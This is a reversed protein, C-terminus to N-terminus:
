RRASIASEMQASQGSVGGSSTGSSATLDTPAEVTIAVATLEVGLSSSRFNPYDAAVDWTLRRKGAAVSGDAGDGSLTHAALAVQRDNGYGSLTIAARTGEPTTQLEYDVDLFNSFSCRPTAKVNSVKATAVVPAIIKIERADTKGGFSATM